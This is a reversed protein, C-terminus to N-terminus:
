TIFNKVIFIKKWCVSVVPDRSELKKQRISPISSKVYNLLKAHCNKISILTNNFKKLLDAANATM